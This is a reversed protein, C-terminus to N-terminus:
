KEVKVKVKKKEAPVVSIVTKLRYKGGPRRERKQNFKVTGDTLAYITHDVGYRTGAGALWKTGRQRVLINGALVKESGFKKVGLRKSQSDRGLKTSGGAKVHAM